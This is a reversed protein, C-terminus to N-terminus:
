LISALLCVMISDLDKDNAPLLLTFCCKFWTHLLAWKELNNKESKFQTKVSGYMENCKGKNKTQIEKRCKPFQWSIQQPDFMINASFKSLMNEGDEAM